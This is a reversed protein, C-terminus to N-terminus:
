RGYRETVLRREEESLSKLYARWGPCWGTHWRWIRGLFSGPKEDYRRRFSCTECNHKKTDSTTM